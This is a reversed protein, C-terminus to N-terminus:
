LQVKIMVVLVLKKSAAARQNRKSKGTCKVVAALGGSGAAPAM